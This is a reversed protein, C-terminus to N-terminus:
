GCVLGMSWRSVCLRRVWQRNTCLWADLATTATVNLFFNNYTGLVIGQVGTGDVHIQASAIDTMTTMRTTTTVPPNRIVPNYAHSVKNFTVSYLPFIAVRLRLIGKGFGMM